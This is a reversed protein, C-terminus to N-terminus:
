NMLEPEINLSAKDDARGEQGGMWNKTKKLGSQIGAEEEFDNGHSCRELNGFETTTVWEPTM